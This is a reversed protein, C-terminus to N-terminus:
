PPRGSPGLRTEVPAVFAGVGLELNPLRGMQSIRSYAAQNMQRLAKVQANNSRAIDFLEEPTQGQVLTFLLSLVGIGVYVKKM